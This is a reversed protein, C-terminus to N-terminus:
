FNFRIIWGSQTSDRRGSSQKAEETEDEAPHEIFRQSSNSTSASPGSVICLRKRGRAQSSQRRQRTKQQTSSSGKAQILLQVQDHHSRVIRVRKGKSSQKAKEGGGGKDAKPLDQRRKHMRRITQLFLNKGKEEASLHPVTPIERLCSGRLMVRHRPTNRNNGMPGVQHRYRTMHVIRVTVPAHSTYQDTIRWWHASSHPRRFPYIGSKKFASRPNGVKLARLYAPQIAHSARPQEAHITCVGLPLMIEHRFDHKQSDQRGWM